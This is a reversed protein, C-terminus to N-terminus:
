QLHRCMWVVKGIVRLLQAEEGQICIPSYATNDSVLYLANDQKKLRKILINDEYGFAYLEGVRANHHSQDILVTDGSMIAPSMSDGVVDMLVMQSPNGRRALWEHRFPIEEIISADVDLSGGGASLVAHVRPILRVEDEHLQSLRPSGIGFELWDPSLGFIRSMRLLWKQPVTDRNKAQTVASRHVGLKTALASQTQIDTEQKIRTLFLHFKM